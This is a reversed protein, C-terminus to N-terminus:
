FDILPRTNEALWKRENEDMFICLEEYVCRHYEDIIRIEEETLMETEILDRDFPVLTLVEFGYFDGFETSEKPVCVVMNETRIGFEGEIYVGPEDRTIM